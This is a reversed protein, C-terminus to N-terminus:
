NGKMYRTPNYPDFIGFDIGKPNDQKIPRRAFLLSAEFEDALNEIDEVSASAYTAASFEKGFRAKAQALRDMAAARRESEDVKEVEPIRFAAM